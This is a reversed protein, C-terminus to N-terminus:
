LKKIILYFLDVIRFIRRTVIYAGIGFRLHFKNHALLLQHFLILHFLFLKLSCFYYILLTLQLILFLSLLGFYHSTDLISVLRRFFAQFLEEKSEFFSETPVVNSDAVDEKISTDRVLQYLYICTFGGIIFCRTTLFSILSLNSPIVKITLELM